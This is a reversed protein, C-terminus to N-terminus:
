SNRQTISILLTASGSWKKPDPDASGTKLIRIRIRIRTVWFLGSGVPNPDQNSINKINLLIIIKTHCKRVFRFMTHGKFDFIFFNNPRFEIKSLQIYRFVQIVSTKKHIFSGPSAFLGSGVPDLDPNAASSIHVRPQNHTVAGEGSRINKLSHVM